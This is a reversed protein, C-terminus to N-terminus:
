VNIVKNRDIYWIFGRVNLYGMQLIIEVYENVQKRHQPLFQDNGFKYDVVHVSDHFFIVRDPRKIEGNHVVIDKETFVSGSKDFWLSVPEEDFCALLHNKLELSDSASILGEMEANRISRDLDSQSQVTSLIEHLVRGRRTRILTDHRSDIFYEIGQQRFHFREFLPKAISGSFVLEKDFAKSKESKMKQESKIELTSADANFWSTLKSDAANVVSGYLLDGVTSIKGPRSDSNIYVPFVILTEIARTFAVYLLNLNDIYSRILESFYVSAFASDKLGRQYNVPVIPLYEFSLGKTDAWLISNPKQDIRWSCFPIIVARFELGKAKHMTLIRVANQSDGAPIAKSQGEENWFDIFEGLNGSTLQSFSHIMDLFAHVYPLESASQFLNFITALREALDYLPLSRLESICGAFEEPMGAAVSEPTFSDGTFELMPNVNPNQRNYSVAQFIAILKARTIEEDSNYLYEMCSALLGVAVSSNLFLSEETLVNMKQVFRNEADLKVLLDAIKKGDKKDRVLIAIDGPLYDKQLLGNLRTLLEDTYYEDSDDAEKGTFFKIFVNGGGTNRQTVEQVVDQYIFDLLLLDDPPANKDPIADYLQAKLRDVAVPFLSNNFEIIKEGSRWNKNRKEFHLIEGPYENEILKSIIEWSSNRWRYISQKADGVLLNENGQSLANSVLPKFNSWQIISTDQFEDILFHGYRNGMKEYIFPADNNHIIRNILIPADSLIFANRELRYMRIYGALDGLIGVTYINKLIERASCYTIYHKDTYASVDHFLPLLKKDALEIVEEKRNTTGSPWIEPGEFLKRATSSRIFLEGASNTMEGSKLKAFLKVPGNSKQYFDDESLGAQAIFSYGRDGLNIIYNEFSLKVSMLQSRFQLLKQKDSVKDILLLANESFKENFIEKGLRLLSHRIEWAKGQQIRDEAYHTLWELNKSEEQLDDLLRDVAFELAPLPDLEISFNGPIGIERTFGRIIRQFFSDITEISFGSFNHLINRLLVSCKERLRDEKFGSTKTLLDVYDSPAGEALKHLEQLIRQKMEATAKNTFTVALVQRFYDFRERILTKLFFGTLFHTKGSGASARIINLKSM